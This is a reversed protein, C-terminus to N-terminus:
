STGAALEDNLKSVDREKQKYNEILCSVLDSASKVLLDLDKMMNTSIKLSQSHSADDRENQLMENWQKQLTLFSKLQTDIHDFMLYSQLNQDGDSMSAKIKYMRAFERIEEVNKLITQFIKDM